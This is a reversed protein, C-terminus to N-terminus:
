AHTVNAERWQKVISKFLALGDDGNILESVAREPHPMMGLVNGRENIIGAIQNRSGNFDDAYSFVIQNNQLLQEYTEDDCYYNGEGHAIPIQIEQGQEYETTFLTDANEVKLGVTKCMFKLNKNRLLVGPLLGAETLIQFGNCIGLVPKGAEAAKKVEDMVASSQAIAGCRLYDGYSFGGPLLVGDYKSLDTSDHWVYEAEEGLEDKIAHYMDLDCNSGPFVIVAFKM